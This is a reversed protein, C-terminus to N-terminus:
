FNLFYNLDSCSKNEKISTAVSLSDTYIIYKNANENINENQIIWKTAEIIATLEASYISSNDAIRFVNHSNMSPIYFAASVVNEFKSGDTYISTRDVYKDILQLSLSSMINPSDTKKNIYKKLSLDVKTTGNFWPATSQYIPSNFQESIMSFFHETRKFISNQKVSPASYYNSWHDRMTDAAPHDNSGM